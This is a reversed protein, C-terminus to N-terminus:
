FPFEQQPPPSSYHFPNQLNTLCINFCLTCDKNSSCNPLYEKIHCISDCIEPILKRHHLGM